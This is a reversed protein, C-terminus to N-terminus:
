GSPALRLALDLDEPFTIKLNAPSSPVAAVPLDTYRAWCAATDTGEFGDTAADAYASVLDRARFAQPTQVGDLSGTRPVPLPRGDRSLLGPLHVVPIAGGHEQAAAITAAFLEPGALPRAGDHIAVVDIDGAEIAPRLADLAAAESAHRTAGGEVLGVEADGLHPQLAAAVDDQEGPRVVVLVRRVGDVAAADRVSWALVPRDGLPLLVKNSGAGVRSGTGAALIVVAAPM